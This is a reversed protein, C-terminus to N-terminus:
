SRHVRNFQLASADLHKEIVSMWLALNEPAIRDEQVAGDTLTRSEGLLQLFLAFSWERNDTRWIARAWPQLLDPFHEPSFMPPRTPAVYTLQRGFVEVVFILFSLYLNFPWVCDRKKTTIAGFDILFAGEIDSVFVNWTRVDNHYLGQSELCALQQLITGVIKGPNYALGSVILKSLREGPLSERVLWCERETIGFALLMPVPALGTPPSKLIRAEQELEEKNVDVLHGKRIFYKVITFDSFFYRRTGAYTDGVLEHQHDTWSEFYGLEGALYWLSNSCFYLPRPIESLHTTHESLRHTFSFAELFDRPEEPLSPSWYLPESRLASEFLFVETKQAVVSLLGRTYEFGKEHCIHHFVSLGLVLDFQQLSGELFKEISACEFTLQLKPYQAALTTCLEINEPCIDIGLVSANLNALNFSFFGQACGLDLIRLPRGHWQRLACYVGAIERFREACPRSAQVSLEPHGFIPQYLEPLVLSRNSIVVQPM